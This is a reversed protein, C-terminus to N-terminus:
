PRLRRPLPASEGSPWQEGRPLLGAALRRVPGVAGLPCQGRCASSLSSHQQMAVVSGCRVCGVYGGCCICEHTPDVRFPVVNDGCPEDLPPLNRALLLWASSRATRVEEVAERRAVRQESLIRRRKAPTVLTGAACTRPTTSRMPVTGPHAPARQIPPDDAGGRSDLERARVRRRLAEFRIAAPTPGDGTGANRKIGRGASDAAHGPQADEADDLGLHAFGFPDEDDSEASAMRGRKAASLDLAPASPEQGLGRLVQPAGKCQSTTWFVHSDLERRRRCRSCQLYPGRLHVRHGMREIAVQFATVTTPIPPPEPLRMEPPAPVLRPGDPWLSAEIIALRRAMLFCRGQWISVERAEPTSVAEEAAAGAGADALANGLFEQLEVKGLLVQKEAHAKVKAPDVELSKCRITEILLAWLDGNAGQLLRARHETAM